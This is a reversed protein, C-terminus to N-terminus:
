KKELIKYLTERLCSQTLDRGVDGVFSTEGEKGGQNRLNSTQVEMSQARGEPANGTGQTSPSSTTGVRDGGGHASVPLPARPDPGAGCGGQADGRGQFQEWGLGEGGAGGKSWVKRRTRTKPAPLLEGPTLPTCM